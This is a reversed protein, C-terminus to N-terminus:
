LRLQAACHALAKTMRKEVTKLSIGLREAIQSNSLGGVRSLLFVDRLAQPLGLVIQKALVADTQVPLVVGWGDLRTAEDALRGRRARQRFRDTALNCAIRLLLAKPYRIKNASLYPVFRIWTEQVLEEADDTGYRRTLTTKLWRSYEDYVRHVHGARVGSLSDSGNSM